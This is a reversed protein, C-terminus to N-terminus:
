GGYLGRIQTKIADAPVGSIKAIFITRLNKNEIEREWLYALLPEVGFTVLVSERLYKLMHEEISREILAIQEDADDTRDVRTLISSLSSFLICGAFGELNLDFGEEFYKMDISGHPILRGDLFSRKKEQVRLRLTTLINKADVTRVFYGRIFPNQIEDLLMFLENYYAIDCAVDIERGSAEKLDSLKNYTHLLVEGTQTARGEELSTKLNQFGYNSCEQFAMPIVVVADGRREKLVLKLLEYDYKLSILRKMEEEILLSKIMQFTGSFSEELNSLFLGTNRSDSGSIGTIETFLSLFRDDAAAILTNLSAADIRRTELARIRGVAYAYDSNEVFGNAQM